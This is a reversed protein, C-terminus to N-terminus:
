EGIILRKRPQPEPLNVDATIDSSESSTRSHNQSHTITSESNSETAFIKDNKMQLSIPRESISRRYHKEIQINEINEVNPIDTSPLLKLTTGNTTLNPSSVHFNQRLLSAGNSKEFSKESTTQVASFTQEPTEPISNQSPPRPAIRKKRGPVTPIHSNSLRQNMAIGLSDTSNLSTTSSYPSVSSMTHPRVTLRTDQGTSHMRYRVTTEEIVNKQALKIESLGVEGITLNLSFVQSDDAPFFIDDTRLYLLHM